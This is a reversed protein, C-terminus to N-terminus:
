RHSTGGLNRKTLSGDLADLRPLAMGPSVSTALTTSTESTDSAAIGGTASFHAMESSGGRGITEATMKTDARIADTRHTDLTTMDGDLVPSGRASPQGRSGPRPLIVASQRRASAELAGSYDASPGLTQGTILPAINPSVGSDKGSASPGRLLGEQATHLLKERLALLQPRELTVGAFTLPMPKYMLRVLMEPDLGNRRLANTNRTRRKVDLDKGTVGVYPTEKREVFDQLDLAVSIRGSQLSMSMVGSIHELGKLSSSAAKSASDVRNSMYQIERLFGDKDLKRKSDLGELDIRMERLNAEVQKWTEHVLTDLQSVAKQSQQMFKEVEGRLLSAARMEESLKNRSDNLLNATFASMLNSTQKMEERADTAVKDIHEEMIKAARTLESVQGAVSEHQLRITNVVRDLQRLDEIDHVALDLMSNAKKMQLDLRRLSLPALELTNEPGWIENIMSKQLDVADKMDLELRRVENYLEDKLKHMGDDFQQQLDKLTQNYRAMDQSCRDIGRSLRHCVSKNLEIDREQADMRGSTNQEFNGMRGELEFHRDWFKELQTKFAFVMDSREKSEKMDKTLEQMLDSMQDYKEVLIDCETQLRTTWRVTPKLLEVILARLRVEMEAFQIEDEKQTTAM